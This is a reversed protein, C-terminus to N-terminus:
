KIEIVGIGVKVETESIFEITEYSDKIERWFKGVEIHPCEKRDFIDHMAIIGGAGVLGKYNYFDHKVGEYSHDGDIFLFDITKGGLLSKIENIVESSSSNGDCCYVNAGFRSCIDRYIEQRLETFSWNEGPGWDCAIITNPSSPLRSWLYLTGGLYTGIEVVTKINKADLYKLFRSIEDPVQKTGMGRLLFTGKFKKTVVFPDHVNQESNLIANRYRSIMAPWLWSPLMACLRDRLNRIRNGVISM